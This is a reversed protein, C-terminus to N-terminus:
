KKYFVNFGGIFGKLFGGDVVVSSSFSVTVNTSNGVVGFSFDLFNYKEKYLELFKILYDVGTFSNNFFLVLVGKKYKLNDINLDGCFVSVVRMNLLNEEALSFPGYMQTLKKKFALIDDVFYLSSLERYARLREYSLSIYTELFSCVFSVQYNFSDIVSMNTTKTKEEFARSLIKSYYEYGVDYISGSQKYGFVVGGGRIELDAKSLSYGCGLSSNQEITKLRKKGSVTLPKNKPVLLYAFGQSEGRGVRGRIQHLQSLGFLHSNDVFITNANPIDVGSAIVSSCLLLNYKKNVFDELIKKIKNVGLGSYVVGVSVYPCLRLLFSKVSLINEVRNHLYFVQGSRSLEFDISQKILTESFYSVVTNIPKRLVPPSSLTSINHIGSLGLHLTRPIPTASMFLVDKNVFKNVLVEKQKVGFRHEEDVVFFSAFKIFVDDYLAASTSILVDIKKDVWDVKIKNKKTVGLGGVLGAVIVGFSSLRDTFVNLHQNVLVSTPCLVVVQGGNVVVRFSARLALETKGFGVDGCLLRSMPFDGELDKKLEEWVVSQDVTDTYNFAQLFDNELEGGFGFSPRVNTNKKTYINVLNDVYTEVNKQITLGKRKWVGKKNLSSITQTSNKERSVFSLKFLRKVSLNITGDLYKIKIFEEENEEGKNFGVFVGVGYDEHCVFDGKEFGSILEIPENKQKNINKYIIPAYVHKNIKYASFRLDNVYTVDTKNKQFFSEKIETVFSKKNKQKKREVDIVMFNNKQLVDELLSVVVEDSNKNLYVETLNENKPLGTSLNYFVFKAPDDYFYARIPHQYIPSYFDVIGGKVCFQKTEVVGEVRQYGTQKLFLALDEFLVSGDIKISKLTEKYSLEKTGKVCVFVRVGKLNLYLSLSLKEMLRDYISAFGPPSNEKLSKNGVLLFDQHNLFLGFSGLLDIYQNKSILLAVKKQSVVSLDILGKLSIENYNNELARLAYSQLNKV